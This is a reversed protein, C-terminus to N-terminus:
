KHLADLIDAAIQEPSREDKKQPRTAQKSQRRAIDAYSKGPARGGAFKATSEAILQACTAIYDRFQEERALLRAKSIM